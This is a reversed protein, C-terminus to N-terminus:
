ADGGKAAAGLRGTGLHVIEVESFGDLFDPAAAEALMDMAQVIRVAQVYAEGLHTLQKRLYPLMMDDVLDDGLQDLMRTQCDAMRGIAMRLEQVPSPPPLSEQGIPLAGDSTDFVAM